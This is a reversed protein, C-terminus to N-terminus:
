MELKGTGWTTRKGRKIARWTTGAMFGMDFVICPNKGTSQKVVGVGWTAEM